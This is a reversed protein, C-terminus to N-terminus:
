GVQRRRKLIDDIDFESADSSATAAVSNSGIPVVEAFSTAVITGLNSKPEPLMAATWARPNTEEAIPAADAAAARTSYHLASLAQGRMASTSDIAAALRDGVARIGAGAAVVVLLGGAVGTWYISSAALMAVSGAATLMGAVLALVLARRAGRLRFIKAAVTHARGSVKVRPAASSTEQVVLHERKERHLNARVENRLTRSVQRLEGREQQADSSRQFWAPVFVILWLAAIIALM